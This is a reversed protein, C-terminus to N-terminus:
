TSGRVELNVDLQIHREEDVLTKGEILQLIMMAAKEGMLQRPQVVTTIAPVIVESIQTGGFGVVKVDEPVRIGAGLLYQMAGVAFFDNDCFLGEIKQGSAFLDRAAQKGTEYNVSKLEREMSEQYQIGHEALAKRYGQRRLENTKAQCDGTILAIHYAGRALLHKTAIYGGEENGVTVSPLMDSVPRDVTVVPVPYDKLIEDPNQGMGLLILGDIFRQTLDDLYNKEKLENESTCCVIITYGQEYLYNEIASVIEVFFMNFEPIIVGVTLTRKTKLSRALLNPRYTLDEVAQYVRAKIEDSVYKSENLVNSVTSPAM